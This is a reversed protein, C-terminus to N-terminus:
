TAITKSVSSSVSLWQLVIKIMTRNKEARSHRELPPLLIDKYIHHRAITRLVSADEFRDCVHMKDGREIAVHPLFNRPNDM